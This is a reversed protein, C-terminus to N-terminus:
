QGSGDNTIGRTRRVRATQAMKACLAGIVIAVGFVKLGVETSQQMCFLASFVLTAIAQTSNRFATVFKLSLWLTGGIIAVFLVGSVILGLLPNVEPKPLWDAVSRPLSGWVVFPFLFCNAARVAVWMPPEDRLVPDLKFM